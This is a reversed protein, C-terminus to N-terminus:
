EGLAFDGVRILYTALPFERLCHAATLLHRRSILVAGCWHFSSDKGRVRVTAQWPHAGLSCISNSLMSSTISYANLSTILNHALKLLLM